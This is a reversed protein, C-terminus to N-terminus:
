VKGILETDSGNKSQGGVYEGPSLQRCVISRKRDTGERWTCGVLEQEGTMVVTIIMVRSIKNKLSVTMVVAVRTYFSAWEVYRAM